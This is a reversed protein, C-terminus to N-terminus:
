RLEVRVTQVGEAVTVELVEPRRRARVVSVEGNRELRAEVIEDLSSVGRKRLAGWLDRESLHAARLAAQDITGDQILVDAHGKILAGFADWHMALRSFLWHLLFLAATAALSPVFPANGTVARSAVSGIMIGLIVDFATAAGMFRKKGVRVLMVMVMYVLLARLVMQTVTLSHGTIGLGSQLIAALEEM